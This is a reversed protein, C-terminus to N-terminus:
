GEVLLWAYVTRISDTPESDGKKPIEALTMGMKEQCGRAKRADIVKQQNVWNGM